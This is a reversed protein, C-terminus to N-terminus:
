KSYLLERNSNHTNLEMDIIIFFGSSGGCRQTPLELQCPYSCRFSLDRHFVGRINLTGSSVVRIKRPRKFQATLSIPSLGFKIRSFSTTPWGRFNLVCKAQSFVAELNTDHVARVYRLEVRAERFSGLQQPSRLTRFRCVRCM